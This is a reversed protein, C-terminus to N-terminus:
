SKTQRCSWGGFQRHAKNFLILTQTFYRGRQARRTSIRVAWYVILIAATIRMSVISRLTSFIPSVFIGLMEWITLIFTSASNLSM